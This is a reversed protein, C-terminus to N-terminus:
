RVHGREAGALVRDMAYELENVSVVHKGTSAARIAAENVVSAIDAGTFGPTMQALRHSFKNYPHDLKIKKLYLDFMEKREIVGIVEVFESGNMSIFSAISEAALAEAILTKGCGPPGTLLAGRPLKAGLKTYKNPNKLYDVFESIKQKAEFCAVLLIRSSSGLNSQYLFSFFTYAGNWKQSSDLALSYIQRGM